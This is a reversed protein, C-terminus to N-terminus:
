FKEISDDSAFFIGDKVFFYVLDKLFLYLFIENSKDYIPMISLKRLFCKEFVIFM